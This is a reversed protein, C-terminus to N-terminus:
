FMGGNLVLTQGTMYEAEESFLYKVSAAIEQPKALRAMPIVKVLEKKLSEDIMETDVGGPAVCNVTIKRKALERALAKSAAILGAKAASYNVQGRNGIIGSISSISVIRGGRRTQIMPMVLPRLVNYFGGLNTSIVGDWAQRDMAAFPVDSNIGAALVVGYFAGETALEAELVSQVQRHEGVDFVLSRANKYFEKVECLTSALAQSESRGNLVVSFGAKALSLAISKGIGRSSGTILVKRENM